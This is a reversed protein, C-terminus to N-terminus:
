PGQRIRALLMQGTQSMPILVAGILMLIVLGLSVCLLQLLMM